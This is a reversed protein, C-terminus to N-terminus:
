ANGTIKASLRELIYAKGITERWEAAAASDAVIGSGVGLAIEAGTLQITRIAISSDLDGTPEIRVIAGTYFNRAQHEYKDILEMASLKPCGTISGGPLCRLLAEIPSLEERLKGSVRSSAHWVAEHATIKRGEEVVVSGTESVGALDNRMLDTIMNLEAKEKASGLLGERLSEDQERDKARPRTGKIPETEIRNGSIKIFREPSASILETDGLQLHALLNNAFPVQLQAWLGNADGELLQAKMFLALNLQYVNGLEIQEKVKDVLEIYRSKSTASESAAVKYNASDVDLEVASDFAALVARPQFNKHRSELKRLKLGFDYSLAGVIHRGHNAKCFDILSQADDGDYIDVPDAFTSNSWHGAFSARFTM